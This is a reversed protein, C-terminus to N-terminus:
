YTDDLDGFNSNNGEGDIVVPDETDDIFAHELIEQAHSWGNEGPINDGGGHGEGFNSFGPMMNDPYFSNDITNSSAIAILSTHGIGALQRFVFPSITDGQEELYDAWILMPTPDFPDESQANLFGDIM